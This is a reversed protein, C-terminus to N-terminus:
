PSSSPSPRPSGSPSPSPTPTAIGTGLAPDLAFGVGSGTWREFALDSAAAGGHRQPTFSYRSAILPMTIRELADRLGERDDPGSARAAVFLLSLADHAAAAHVSPMGAPLPAMARLSPFVARSALDPEKALDLPTVLYSLYFFTPAGTAAAARALAACASLRALCHVSRLVSLNSRVIGPASGDAALAIQAIRELDRQALEAQLAVVFPDVVADSDVLVVSPTLVGRTFADGVQAAAIERLAPALAFAWRGGGVGASLPETFLVPRAALDIARGLTAEDGVPVGVVVADAPEEVAARRLEIYLSAESGGVDVTKVKVPPGGAPPRAIWAQLADRQEAGVSANPGSLDLLATVSLVGAEPTPAPTPTVVVPATCSVLLAAALAVTRM